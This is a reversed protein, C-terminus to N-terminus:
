LGLKSLSYEIFRGEETQHLESYIKESDGFIGQEYAIKTPFKNIFKFGYGKGYNYVQQYYNGNYIFDMIKKRGNDDERIISFENREAPKNYDFTGFTTENFKKDTQM